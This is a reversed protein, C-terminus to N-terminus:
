EPTLTKMELKWECATLDSTKKQLEVLCTQMLPSMGDGVNGCSGSISSLASELASKASELESKASDFDDIASKVENTKYGFSGCAGEDDRSYGWRSNCASDYSSQASEVESEADEFESLASEYDEASSELEGADTSCSSDYAVAPASLIMSSALIFDVLFLKM